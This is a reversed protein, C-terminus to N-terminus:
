NANLVGLEGFAIIDISPIIDSYIYLVSPSHRKVQFDVENGNIDIFNWTLISNLNETFDIAAVYLDDQQLFSLTQQYSLNIVDQNNNNQIKQTLENIKKDLNEFDLKLAARVESGQAGNSWNAYNSM